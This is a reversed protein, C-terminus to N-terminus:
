GGLVMSQDPPANANRDTADPRFSEAAKQAATKDEPSLQSSLADIRAKSEADGQEAAVAYWKYADILSQQVGMGREYLVALNFQSDALGLNAARTFWQAAVVLDKQVGVGGAYAVALNHMAKRNGEKAATEYWQTAKAPDAPVGHGREYLTGLRYAAVAENQKAARQLWKAAEAENVSVGDGDLLKLGLLLEAKANGSNALASLRDLPQTSAMQQPPLVKPTDASAIRTPAPQLHGAQMAAPPKMRRQAPMVPSGPVVARQGAGAGNAGNPIVPAPAVLAQPPDSAPPVQDVPTAPPLRTAGGAPAGITPSKVPVAVTAPAGLNRSLLVGAALAAVILLALAGVLAYRAAGSKPVSDAERPAGWTFGFPGGSQESEGAAAARASRRAAALFSETGAAGAQQAANAAFAGAGIAAGAFGLDPGFSSSADPMPPADAFPPQEIGQAPQVPFPPLDFNAAPAQQVPAVQQPPTYFPPPAPQPPLPPAALLVPAVTEVRANTDKVAAHLEAVADRHRKDTADVRTALNRLGEDITAAAGLNNSENKELRAVLDTLAREIAQLRRESGSDAGRADLKAVSEELRAMVGAQQAEGVTFRATLQELTENLRSLGSAQNQLETEINKRALHAAEVTAVAKEVTAAHLEMSEHLQSLGSAQSQLESEIGNRAGHAAEVSALAKEVTSAHLQADREANRMRAEVIGVRDEMAHSLHDIDERAEIVKGAVQEVSGALAAIQSASQHATQSMQDALRSLGQHLAKVADKLGDSAADREIRSLRDNLGVVHAGLQDFAQAQERSAINIEAAAKSMARTNESQSREAQDLRRAVGRLQEEIRRNSDQSDAETRSVRALMDESDRSASVPPAENAATHNALGSYRWSDRASEVNTNGEVLSRLIRRTLWEGVSLGERRAAARAAERAEPPIGAVNWPLDPQM